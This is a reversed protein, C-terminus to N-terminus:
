GFNFVIVEFSSPLLFSVCKFPKPLWLFLLQVELEIIIQFINGESFRHPFFPSFFFSGSFFVGLIFGWWFVSSSFSSILSLPNFPKFTDNRVTGSHM